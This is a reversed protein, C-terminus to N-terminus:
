RRGPPLRRQGSRPPGSWPSRRCRCSCGSCWGQSPVLSTQKTTYMPSPVNASLQRGTSRDRVGPLGIGIARCAGGLTRDASHVLGTIAQLFTDYDQTPTTVRERHLERLTADYAVLEIKTGGVDIGYWCQMPMGQEAM